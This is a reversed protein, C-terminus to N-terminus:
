QRPWQLAAHFVTHSLVGFVPEHKALIQGPDEFQSAFDDFTAILKTAWEDNDVLASQEMAAVELILTEVNATARTRM